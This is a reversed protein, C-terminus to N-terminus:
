TVLGRIRAGGQGFGLARASRSRERPRTASGLATRLTEAYIYSLSFTYGAIPSGSSFWKSIASTSGITTGRPTTPPWRRISLGIPTWLKYTSGVACYSWDSRVFRLASM